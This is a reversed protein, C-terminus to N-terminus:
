RRRRARDGVPEHQGVLQQETDVATATIAAAILFLVMQIAGGVGTSLVM